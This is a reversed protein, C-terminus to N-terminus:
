AGHIQRAAESQAFRIAATGGFTQRSLGGGGRPPFVGTGPARLAAYRGLAGGCGSEPDDPHAGVCVVTLRAPGSEAHAPVLPLASATLTAPSVAALSQKVFRRRTVDRENMSTPAHAAM